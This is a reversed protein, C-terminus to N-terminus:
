IDFKTSTAQIGKTLAVALSRAHEGNSNTATYAIM